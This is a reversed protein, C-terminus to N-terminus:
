GLESPRPLRVDPQREPENSAERDGVTERQEGDSGGDNTSQLLAGEESSAPAIARQAAKAGSASALAYAVAGGIILALGTAAAPRWAADACLSIMAPAVVIPFWRPTPWLKQRWATRLFLVTLAWQTVMGLHLLAPGVVRGLLTSRMMPHLALQASALQVGSLAADSLLVAAVLFCAARAELNFYVVRYDDEAHHSHKYAGDWCECACTRPDVERRSSGTHSIIAFITVLTAAVVLPPVLACLVDM